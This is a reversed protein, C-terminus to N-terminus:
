RRPARSRRIPQLLRRDVPDRGDWVHAHPEVLLRSGVVEAVAFTAKPVGDGMGISYADLGGVRDAWFVNNVNQPGYNPSTSLDRFYQRKSNGAFIAQVRGALVPHIEDFWYSKDHQYPGASLLTDDWIRHHTLLVTPRDTELGDLVGALSGRFQDLSMSSAVLLFNCDPALVRTALDPFRALYAERRESKLEHNGPTVHWPAELVEEFVAVVAPDHLLSDGLVFVLDPRTANVAGLFERLRGPDKAIPYLHGMLAFRTGRASGAEGVFVTERVVPPLPDEGGCGGTLQLSALILLARM